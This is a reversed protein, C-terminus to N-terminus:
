FFFKAESISRKIAVAAGPSSSFWGTRSGRIQCDNDFLSIIIIKTRYSFNLLTPQPQYKSPRRSVANGQTIVILGPRSATGGKPVSVVAASVPTSTTRNPCRSAHGRKRRSTPSRRAARASSPALRWARCWSRSTTREM